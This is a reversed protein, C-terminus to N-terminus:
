APKERGAPFANLFAMCALWASVLIATAFFLYRLPQLGLASGPLAPKVYPTLYIQQAAANVRARDLAQYANLLLAQAYQRDLLLTEYRSVVRTLVSQGPRRTSVQGQVSSLQKRAARVAAIQMQVQSSTKSLKQGLMTALAAENQALTTAVSTSLTVNSTVDGTANTPDIAGEKTRFDAMDADMAALKERAHLVEQSAFKVADEQARNNIRNILEESLAVVTDAIRLADERRFAKFTATAVGTMTDYSTTMMKQWYDMLEEPSADAKLRFWPDADHRSYLARLDIRAQLDDVADRSNIYDVVVYNQPSTSVVSPTSSGSSMSSALTSLDTTSGSPVAAPLTGATPTIQQVSFHFEAVYQPTAVAYLYFALAAVPLLVIVVFLRAPRRDRRQRPPRGDSERRTSVKFFRAARARRTGLGTEGGVLDGAGQGDLAVASGGPATDSAAARQALTDSEVAHSRKTAEPDPGRQTQM